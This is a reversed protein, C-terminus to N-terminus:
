IHTGQAQEQSEGGHKRQAGLGAVVGPETVGFDLAVGAPDVVRQGGGHGREAIGHHELGSLPFQDPAHAAHEESRQAGFAAQGLLAGDDQSGQLGDLMEGDRRGIEFHFVTVPELGHGDAAAGAQQDRSGVIAAHEVADERQQPLDGEVLGDRLEVFPVRGVGADAPDVM